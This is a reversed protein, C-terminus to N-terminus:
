QKTNSVADVNLLSIEFHSVDLISSIVRLADKKRAISYSYMEREGKSNNNLDLLSMIKQKIKNKQKYIENFTKKAIRQTCHKVM